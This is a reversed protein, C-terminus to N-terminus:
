RDAVGSQAAGPESSHRTTRTGKRDAPSDLGRRQEDLLEGTRNMARQCFQSLAQVIRDGKDPDEEDYSQEADIVTKKFSQILQETEEDRIRVSPAQFAALRSAINLRHKELAEDSNLTPRTLVETYTSGLADQLDLIAKLRMDVLVARRAERRGERERRVAFLHSAAQGVVGGVLTLSGGILVGVLTTNM